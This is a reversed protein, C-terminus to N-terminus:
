DVTHTRLIRVGLTDGVAVIEGEGIRRGNVVLDVPHAPDRALTFLYGPGLSELEALTLEVQGLEFVLRLPLDDISADRENGNAITQRGSMTAGTIWADTGLERTLRRRSTIRVGSSERTAHWCLHEGAVALVESQSVEHPETVVVAGPHLRRLDRMALAFGGVRLAVPVILDPFHARVAPLKALAQAVLPATPPTLELRAPWTSDDPLICSLFVSLPSVPVVADPAHVVAFALAPLHQDLFVRADDLALALLLRAAEGRAQRAAPDLAALIGSLLPQPLMLRAPANGFRLPVMVPDQITTPAAITVTMGAINLPRRRRGLLTALAAEFPTVRPPRWPRTAPSVATQPLIQRPLHM